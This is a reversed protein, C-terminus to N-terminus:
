QVLPLLNSVGSHFSHLNVTDSSFEEATSKESLCLYGMSWDQYRRETIDGESMKTVDSHRTDKEIRAYLTDIHNAPGEIYQIFGHSHTVLIGTISVSANHSRATDLIEGLDVNKLNASSRYIIHKLTDM